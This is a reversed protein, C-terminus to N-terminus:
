QAFAVQPSPIHLNIGQQILYSAIRERTKANVNKGALVRKITGEDVNFTNAGEKQTLGYLYLYQGVRKSLTTGTHNYIPTYNLYALIKPTYRVHPTNRNLEWNTITDTTAGLKQAVCGQTHNNYKRKRRLHDGLTHLENFDKYRPTRAVKLTIRTPVCLLM